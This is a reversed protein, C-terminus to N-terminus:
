NTPLKFMYQLKLLNSLNSIRSGYALRIYKSFDHEFIGEGLGTLQVLMELLRPRHLARQMANGEGHLILEVDAADISSQPIHPSGEFWSSVICNQHCQQLPHPCHNNCLCVKRLANHYSM